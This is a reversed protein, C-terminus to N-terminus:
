HQSKGRPRAARLRVPRQLNPLWGGLSTFTLELHAYSGDKARAIRSHPTRGTQFIIPRDGLGRHGTFRFVPRGYNAPKRSGLLRFVRGLKAPRGRQVESVIRALRLYMM